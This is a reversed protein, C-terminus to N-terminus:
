DGFKTRFILEFDRSHEHLTLEFAQEISQLHEAPWYLYPPTSGLHEERDFGTMECFRDSVFLYKGSGDVISVGDALANLPKTNFLDLLEM